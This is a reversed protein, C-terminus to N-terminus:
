CSGRTGLHERDPVVDDASATLVLRDESVEVGTVDFGAPLRSAACLTLPEGGLVANTVFDTVDIGPGGATGIEIATPTLLVYPGAAEAEATASYEIGFGLVEITRRYGVVGDGLVFGGIVDADTVAANLADESLELTAEVHGIPGDLRVPVDSLVLRADVPIGNVTLDPGDVVVESVTGSVAQALVSFGGISVDVDGEVGDPLQQEVRDAAVQEVIGRAVIDAVVLLAAVVLVIIGAVLWGRGRRRPPPADEYPDIVQTDAM